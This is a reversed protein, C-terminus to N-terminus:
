ALTINEKRKILRARVLWALTMLIMVGVVWQSASGGPIHTYSDDALEQRLAVRDISQIELATLELSGAHLFSRLRSEQRSARDYQIIIIILQRLSYPLSTDFRSLSGRSFLLTKPDLGPSCSKPM